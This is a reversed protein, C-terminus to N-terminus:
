DWRNFLTGLVLVGIVISGVLFLGTVTGHSGVDYGFIGSGFYAILGAVLYGKM